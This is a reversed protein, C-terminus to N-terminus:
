LQASIEPVKGGPKVSAELPVMLPVGAAAPFYLPRTFPEVEPEVRAEVALMLPVGVAAPWYLKVTCTVSEPEGACDADLVREIEIVDAEEVKTIVVV